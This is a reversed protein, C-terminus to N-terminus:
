YVIELSESPFTHEVGGFGLAYQKYLLCNVGNEVADSIEHDARPLCLVEKQSGMEGWEGDRNIPKVDDQIVRAVFPSYEIAIHPPCNWYDTTTFRYVDIIYEQGDELSEVVLVGSYRGYGEHRLFQDLVLVPTKAPLTEGTKEWKEPGSQQLIPVQWPTPPIKEDYYRPDLDAILYGTVGVYEPEERGVQEV